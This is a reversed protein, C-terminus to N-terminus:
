EKLQKLLFNRDYEILRPIIMIVLAMFAISLLVTLNSITTIKDENLNSIFVILSQITLIYLLWKVITYIWKLLKQIFANKVIQM